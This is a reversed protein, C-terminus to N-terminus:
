QKQVGNCVPCTDIFTKGAWWFGDGYKSTKGSYPGAPTKLPGNSAVFAAQFGFGGCNPCDGARLPKNDSLWARKVGPVKLAKKLEAGIKINV